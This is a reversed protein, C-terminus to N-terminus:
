FHLDINLCQKNKPNIIFGDLKIKDILAKLMKVDRLCYDIVTGIKGVQYLKPAMSGDFSKKLAPFNAKVVADLSYGSHTTRNFEPGLGLASWIERLIDVSSNEPFMIGHAKVLNDDFSHNNFGFITKHRGTLIQFDQINDDMFVRYEDFESDYACICSIGMGIYDKWSEAYKWLPYQERVAKSPEICHKIECDYILM